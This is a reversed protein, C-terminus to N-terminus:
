ILTLFCMCAFMKTTWMIEDFESSGKENYSKANEKMYKIM